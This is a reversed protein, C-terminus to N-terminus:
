YRQGESFDLGLQHKPNSHTPGHLSPFAALLHEANKTVGEAGSSFSWSVFEHLHNQSIFLPLKSCCLFSFM